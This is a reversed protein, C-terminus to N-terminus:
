RAYLILTLLLVFLAVQAMFIKHNKTVTKLLKDVLMLRAGRPVKVVCMFGRKNCPM